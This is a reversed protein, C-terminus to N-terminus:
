LNLQRRSLELLFPFIHPEYSIAVASLCQFRRWVSVPARSRQAAGGADRCASMQVWGQPLGQVAGGALARRGMKRKCAKQKEPTSCCVLTGLLRSEHAAIFVPLQAVGDGCVKPPPKRISATHTLAPSTLLPPNCCPSPQAFQFPFLQKQQSTTNKPHVNTGCGRGEM